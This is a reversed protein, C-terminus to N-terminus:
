LMRFCRDQTKQESQDTGSYCGPRPENIKSRKYESEVSYLQEDQVVIDETGTLSKRYEGLPSLHSKRKKLRTSDNSDNLPFFVSILIAIM